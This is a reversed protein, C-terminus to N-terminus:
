RIQSVFKDLVIAAIRYAMTSADVKVSLASSTSTAGRLGASKRM